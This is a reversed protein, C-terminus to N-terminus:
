FLKEHYIGKKQLPIKKNSCCKIHYVKQRKIELICHILLLFPLKKSKKMFYIFFCANKIIRNFRIPTQFLLNKKMIM